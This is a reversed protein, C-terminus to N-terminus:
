RWPIVELIEGPSYTKEGVPIVAMANADTTSKLDASGKWDTLTVTPRDNTWRLSCPFYTPRDHKTHFYGRLEAKVFEPKVPERSMLRRIATRVFIQFCVMSSVPNGPLGFVSCQHISNESNRRSDDEFQGFWIPKGPRIQVKHFIERVGVEVLTAPVFDYEGASVGGSLILMEYKLGEAIKARLEAKIDRAVGLPIPEAGAQRVSAVLMSLNSNRIQGPGPKRDIPVLENGTALVAVRPRPFVNPNAIGLEALLAIEQPHLRHGRNLLSEGKKLSRGQRLINWGYLDQPLEAVIKMEEDTTTTLEVPVVADTSKPIPAGTMIRVTQGSNLTMNADDGAAIEGVILFQRTGQLVDESRFAFGDMLSKDFPPSDSDSVVPEALTLNLVDDLAVPIPELPVTERVIISIAEEVTLM